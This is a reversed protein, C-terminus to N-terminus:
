KQCKTRESLRCGPDISKQYDPVPFAKGTVPINFCHPIMENDLVFQCFPCGECKYIVMNLVKATSIKPPRGRRKPIQEDM